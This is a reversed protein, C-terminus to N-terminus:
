RATIDTEYWVFGSAKAQAATGIYSALIARQRAITARRPSTCTKLAPFVRSAKVPVYPAVFPVLDMKRAEDARAAANRLEKQASAVIVEHREIHRQDPILTVRAGGIPLCVQKAHHLDLTSEALAARARVRREHISQVHAALAFSSRVTGRHITYTTPAKSMRLRQGTAARFATATKGFARGSESALQTDTTITV